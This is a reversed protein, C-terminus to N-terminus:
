AQQGDVGERCDQLCLCGMQDEISSSLGALWGLLQLWTWPTGQTLSARQQANTAM